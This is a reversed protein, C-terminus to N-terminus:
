YFTNQFFFSVHVTLNVEFLLFMSQFCIFGVKIPAVRTGIPVIGVICMKEQHSLSSDQRM